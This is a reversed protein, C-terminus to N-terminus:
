WDVIVGNQLRKQAKKRVHARKASTRAPDPSTGIKTTATDSVPTTIPPDPAPPTPPDVREPAPEIPQASVEAAPTARQLDLWEAGLRILLAIVVAALLLYVWRTRAEIEPLDASILDHTLDRPPEWAVDVGDFSLEHVTPADDRPLSPRVNTRTRRATSPEIRTGGGADIEGSPTSAGGGFPAFVSSLTVRGNTPNRVPASLNLTDRPSTGARLLEMVRADHEQRLKGLERHAFEEVTEGGAREIVAELALKMARADPFRENPDHALGRLVVEDLGQPLPGTISSPADVKIERDDLTALNRGAFLRRRTILEWLVISAGYVDARRDVRAGRLQEPSMYGLKGKLSGVVTVPAVRERMLAIGFDLIKVGGVYTLILNVPSIDRHVVSLPRGELDRLEHATHLGWCIEAVLRAAVIPPLQLSRDAILKGFTIGAVYEMAMYLSGDAEGFDYMQAITPHDLRAVLRAEDLFMARIHEQGIKDSRITKIAFLKDIAHPGIRHALLIDGM